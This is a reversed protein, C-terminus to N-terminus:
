NASHLPNPNPDEVDQKQKLVLSKELSKLRRDMKALKEELDVVVQALQKAVEEVRVPERDQQNRPSHPQIEAEAHRM